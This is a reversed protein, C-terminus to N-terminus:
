AAVEWCRHRYACFRCEYYNPDASVRPMTEGSEVARLIFVARDSMEQALAANFPVLEHYLETTDKNIATFLAANCSIGPISGEM